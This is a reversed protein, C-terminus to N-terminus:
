SNKGNKKSWGHKKGEEIILYIGGFIILCYGCFSSVGPIEGFIMYGIVGTFILRTYDFPMVTSIDGLKLARFICITHTAHFIAQIAVYKTHELMFGDWSQNWILPFAFLSGFMSSYFLQTKSRETRGLIKITINNLLWFILAGFLYFYGNNFELGPKMVLVTGAIGLIGAIIKAFTIKENFIVIGVILVLINELYTVAAADIIKISAIGHYFCVTAALSFVSRAIHLHIKTTYLLGSMGDKLCWPFTVLFVSAKYLFAVQEPSVVKTLNKGVAYLISMSLAHIIVLIIGLLQKSPRMKVLERMRNEISM